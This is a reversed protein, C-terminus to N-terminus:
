FIMPRLIDWVDKEFLASGSSTVHYADGYLAINELSIECMTNCVIKAPDFARTRKIRYSTLENAITEHVITSELRHQSASKLPTRQTPQLFPLRDISYNPFALLSPWSNFVLVSAIGDLAEITLPLQSRVAAISSEANANDTLNTTIYENSTAGVDQYHSYGNWAGILVIAKPKLARISQLVTDGLRADSCYKQSEPHHHFSKRVGILPPCSPHSILVVNFRNQEALKYFLYSWAGSSSDGWIVVTPADIKNIYQRCHPQLVSRIAANDTCTTIGTPFSPRYVFSAGGKNAIRVSIARDPVGQDIYIALGVVSIILAIFILSFSKAGLRHNNRFQLEILLYTLYAALVSFVVVGGRVAISPIAGYLIHAFALAPWHWLYLPYSIKGFWVMPKGALVQRNLWARSGASILLFAGLTPLLARWSPFPVSKDVIIFGLVLLSFGAVSQINPYKEVIDSHHLTLYALVGGIMLEWFRSLPSYFASVAEIEVMVMNLIFSVVAIGVITPLFSHKRRWVLGLLVPWLIYFQEEIALSWLHLLPKLEATTDFYGAESWLLLNSIFATGGATHKGLQRFEDPLLVFWGFFISFCLVLMLAPFIRRIRRGYFDIYSFSECELAEMIITSILFGSIVFFVDVGIYGGKIWTPFAHFGVVALVAIARLGDIDARYNFHGHSKSSVSKKAKSYTNSIQSTNPTVM